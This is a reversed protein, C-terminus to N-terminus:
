ARNARRQKLIEEVRPGYIQSNASDPAVRNALEDYTLVASVRPAPGAIRSVAHLAFEGRFLTLTGPSRPLTRVARQSGDLFAQVQAYNEYEASRMDPVYIFEGGSRPQQILLTVTCENFDFHWPQWQGDELVIVNLAQFEDAMPYLKTKQQVASIFDIFLRCDYLQRLATNTGIQDSALQRRRYSFYRRRPHAEPVTTDVPSSYITRDMYQEDARVLLANSEEVLHALADRHIFNILNCSGTTRM